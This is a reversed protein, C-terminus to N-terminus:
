GWFNLVVFGILFGILRRLVQSYKVAVEGYLTFDMKKILSVGAWPNARADTGLLYLTYNTANPHPLNSESFATSNLVFNLFMEAEKQAAIEEETLETTSNTTTSNGATTENTTNTETSDQIIRTTTSAEDTSGTTETTNTTNTTSNSASTEETKEKPLLDPHWPLDKINMYLVFSPDTVLYKFKLLAPNNMIDIGLKIHEALIYKEQTENKYTIMGYIYGGRKLKVETLQITKNDRINFIKSERELAQDFFQLTVLPTRHLVSPFDKLKDGLSAYFQSDLIIGQTTSYATTDHEVKLNKLIFIQISTSEEATQTNSNIETTSTKDIVEIQLIRNEKPHLSNWKKILNKKNEILIRTTGSTETTNTSNETTNTANTIEVVPKLDLMAEPDVEFETSSYNVYISPCRYGDSTQLSFFFLNFDSIFYYKMVIM